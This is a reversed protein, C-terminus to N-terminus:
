LAVHLYSIQKIVRLGALQYCKVKRQFKVASQSNRSLRLKIVRM